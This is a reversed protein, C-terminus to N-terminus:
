ESNRPEKLLSVFWQIYVTCFYDLWGGSNWSIDTFRDVLMQAFYQRFFFIRVFGFARVLVCEVFTTVIVFQGVFFCYGRICRLCAASVTLSVYRKIWWVPFIYFHFDLLAKKGVM